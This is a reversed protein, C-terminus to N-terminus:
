VPDERALRVTDEVLCMLSGAYEPSMSSRYMMSLLKDLKELADCIRMHADAEMHEHMLNYDRVSMSGDYTHPDFEELSGNSSFPIDEPLGEPRGSDECGPGAGQEEAQFKAKYRTATAASVGALRAAKPAGMGEAFANELKKMQEPTTKKVTIMRREIGRSGPKYRLCDKGVHCGRAQHTKLIFDCVNMSSPGSHYMCDKHCEPPKM